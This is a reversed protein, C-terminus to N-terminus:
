DNIFFGTIRAYAHGSTHDSVLSIEMTDNLGLILSGHKNYTQMSGDTPYWRDFELATGALTPSENYATLTAVNGSARNMNVPTVAVGGSGYTRNFAIYFYNTVSPLATGGALGAVELRMYSVVYKMTSSTNQLHLVCQDAAAVATETGWTQYCQGHNWSIHHQLEHIESQTAAQGAANVLVKNGSGHGDELFISM